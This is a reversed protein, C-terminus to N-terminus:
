RWENRLERQIKVPDTKFNLIGSYKRANFGKKKANKLTNLLKNVEEKGANKNLVITM